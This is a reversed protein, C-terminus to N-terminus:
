ILTFSCLPPFGSCLIWYQPCMKLTSQSILFILHSYRKWVLSVMGEKKTVQYLMSVDGGENIMEKGLTYLKYKLFYSAVFLLMRQPYLCPNKESSISNKLEHLHLFDLKQQDWSFGLSQLSFLWCYLVTRTSSRFGLDLLSRGAQNKERAKIPYM